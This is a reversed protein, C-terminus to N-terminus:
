VRWGPCRWRAGVMALDASHEEIDAVTVHDREEGHLQPDRSSEDKPLWTPNM